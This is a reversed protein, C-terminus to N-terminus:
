SVISIDLTIRVASNQLPVTVTESNPYSLLVKGRLVTPTTIDTVVGEEALHSSAGGMIMNGLEALASVSMDDLEEVPMGMMMASAIQKANDETFRVLVRGTIDGTLELSIALANEVELHKHVYSPKVELDQGCVMSFTETAAPEIAENVM